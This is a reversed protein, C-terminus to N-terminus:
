GGESYGGFATQMIRRIYILVLLLGGLGFGTAMGRVVHDGSSVEQFVEGVIQNTTGSERVVLRALAYDSGFTLGNTGQISTITWTAPLVTERVGPPYWELDGSVIIGVPVALRNDIIVDGAQAEMGVLVAVSVAVAPLCRWVALWFANLATQAARWLFYNICATMVVGFPIMQGFWLWVASVKSGFAADVAAAASQVVEVPSSGFADLISLADLWSVALLPIAATALTVTNSVAVKIGYGVTAGVATTSTKSATSISGILSMLYFSGTWEQYIVVFFFILVTMIIVARMVAVFVKMGKPWFGPRFDLKAISALAFEPKFLSIELDSENGGSLGNTFSSPIQNSLSAMWGSNASVHQNSGTTVASTVGDMIRNSVSSAENTPDTYLRALGNTLDRHLGWMAGTIVTSAGWVSGTITRGVVGLHSTVQISGSRVAAAVDDLGLGFATILADGMNHIDNGTAGSSYNTVPNWNWYNVQNTGTQVANTPFPLGSYSNNPGTVVVTNTMTAVSTVTDVPDANVYDGIPAGQYPRLFLGMSGGYDNTFYRDVVSGPAIVTSGYEVGNTEGVYLGIKLVGTDNTWQVRHVYNTVYAPSAPAGSDTFTCWVDQVAQQTGVVYGGTSNSCIVSGTLGQPNKVYGTSMSNAAATDGPDSQWGGGSVEFYYTYGMGSGNNNQTRVYYYVAQADIAFGSLGVLVAGFLGGFRDFLTGHKM